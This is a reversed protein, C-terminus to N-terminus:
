SGQPGLHLSLAVWLTYFLGLRGPAGPNSASIATRGNSRLGALEPTRPQTIPSLPGPIRAAPPRSQLSRHHWDGCVPHM